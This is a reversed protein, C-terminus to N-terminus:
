KKGDKRIVIPIKFYGKYTENVGSLAEGQSLSKKPKDDRFRNKVGGVHHIPDLKKIKKRLRDFSDLFNTMKSLQSILQRIELNSVPIRYCQAIHVIDKKNFCIRRQKM